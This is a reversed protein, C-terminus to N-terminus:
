LDFGRFDRRRSLLPEQVNPCHSRHRWVELLPVAECGPAPCRWIYNICIRGCQPLAEEAGSWGGPGKARTSTHRWRCCPLQHRGAGLHGTRACRCLSGLHLLSHMLILIFPHISSPILIFAHIFSGSFVRPRSVAPVVAASQRAHPRDACRCCHCPPVPDEDPVM